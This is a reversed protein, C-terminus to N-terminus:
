QDIIDRVVPGATAGGGHYDRSKDPDDLVCYVVIAPDRYPAAGIFNPMYRDEHYGGGNKKPLQPTGSKGFIDYLESQANRGTGEIMVKRLVRRTESATSEDIARRIVEVRPTIS